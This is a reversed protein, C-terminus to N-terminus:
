NTIRLFDPEPFFIFTYLWCFKCVNSFHVQQSLVSSRHVPRVLLLFAAPLQVPLPLLSRAFAGPDIPNPWSYLGRVRLRALQMYGVSGTERNKREKWAAGDAYDKRGWGESTYEHLLCIGLSWCLPKIRFHSVRSIPTRVVHVNLCEEFRTICIFIEFYKLRDFTESSYRFRKM